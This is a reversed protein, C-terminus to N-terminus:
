WQLSRFYALSEPNALAAENRIPLGNIANRVAIESLKGSITRPFDSASLIRSPVHRPSCNERIRQRLGSEIESSITGSRTRVFLVIQEDGDRRLATAICELVEPFAEVQQYIEATGIRVGGPNLTADSRGYIIYGGDVTEEAWDGHCWVNNFVEFYAARYRRKDPDNWFSVPMSPFANRCVLEGQTGVIPLGGDDFVAVDMGLGKCQIEGRRVPLTPNGLVFCSVIDTGGSISALCASRSIKDYIYDFSEPLLPSGTSLIMRLRELPFNANVVAGEKELASFYKASAGFHTVSHEEAIQFLKEWSPYFPSGDYLIATAGSALVSVLWNWMMWGTTTYYMMRDGARIDAHLRHEKLHQLLTGGAGHVIGKPAGTTGSSYLVYVPHSFGERVFSIAANPEQLLNALLHFELDSPKDPLEDTFIIRQLSTMRSRAQQVKEWARVEKGNYQCRTTTVLVKPEIQAFRDAIADAGFDPSCSSWIAGLATTALMAIVAESRNPLVAAVRDGVGIGMSILARSLSGVKRYLENRTIVTQNGQEDCSIIAMSNGTESGLCLDPRLLNEAFNLTADPFWKTDTLHEGDIRISNGPNGIVKFEDWVLSWFRDSHAVSAAHFEAYDAFASVGLDRAFKGAFDQMRASEIAAPSPSWLITSM